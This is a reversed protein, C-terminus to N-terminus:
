DENVCMARLLCSALRETRWRGVAEISVTLQQKSLMAILSIQPSGRPSHIRCYVVSCMGGNPSIRLNGCDITEEFYKITESLFILDSCLLESRGKFDTQGFLSVTNSVSVCHLHVRFREDRPQHNLSGLPLESDPSALQGGVPAFLLHSHSVRFIPNVVTQSRWDAVTEHHTFRPGSCSVPTMTAFRRSGGSPIEETM